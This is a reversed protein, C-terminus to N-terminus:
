ALRPRSTTSNSSNKATNKLKVRELEDKVAQVVQAQTTDDFRDFKLEADAMKTKWELETTKMSNWRQAYVEPNALADAAQRADFRAKLVEDPNSVFLRLCTWGQQEAFAKIQAAGNPEVVIAVVGGDAGFRKQVEEKSVGYFNTDFEVHEVMEGQAVKKKFEAKSVFHYDVGNVEGQRQPRTTVSTARSVVGEKSLMSELTSKGSLSPGTITLIIGSMSFVESSSRFIRQSM